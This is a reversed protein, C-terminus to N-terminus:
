KGKRHIVLYPLGDKRQQKSAIILSQGEDVAAAHQAYGMKDLVEAKVKSLEKKAVDYNEHALLLRTSLNGIDVSEAEMGSNARRATEYTNESGDWDPKVGDSLYKRFRRATAIQVSCLFNDYEVVHEEWNWGAVAAIYARKFGFVHMYWQVQAVYAPPIDDWPARATKIEIIGYNGDADRYIADPNAHMWPEATNAWTGTTFVELEPHQEKFLELIPSEFAKGFRISWNPTIDSPILGSKKHWLTYPSEYPNLGMITGIESGGIGEGRLAHWEPTDPSFDGLFKANGLEKM